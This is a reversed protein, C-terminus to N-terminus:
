TAFVVPAGGGAPRATTVRTGKPIELPQDTARKRAFVLAVTASSASQLKLGLLNLFEIYAKEPIRNVRYMLVDTLYAFVEVLTMGADGISLDSWSPCNLQIRANAEDVLQQFTRDDLNPSRLPM